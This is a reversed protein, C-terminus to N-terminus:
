MAPAGHASINAGPTPVSRRHQVRRPSPAASAAGDPTLWGRPDHRIAVGVIFAFTVLALAFAAARIVHTRGRKLAITGFGIYAAVLVLKMTLWPSSLPYQRIITTLVVAALLLTTDIAYSGYRLAAHQAASSDASRLAGRVTFIAGSLAVCVIHVIRIESYFPELMREVSDHGRSKRACTMARATPAGTYM